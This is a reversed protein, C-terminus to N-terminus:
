IYVIDKAIDRAFDSDALSKRKRVIDVTTGLLSELEQKMRIRLLIDPAGEYLVDVDSDAQQENRAVSGFLAMRKVGYKESVEDFYTRLVKLCDEREIMSERKLKYREPQM